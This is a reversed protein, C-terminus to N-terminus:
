CNSPPPECWGTNVVMNRLCKHSWHLYINWDWPANLPISSKKTPKWAMWMMKEDNEQLTVGRYSGVVIFFLFHQHLFDEIYTSIQKPFLILMSRSCVVVFFDFGFFRLGNKSYSNLLKKEWGWVPLSEMQYQINKRYRGTGTPNTPFCSVCSRMSPHNWVQNWVSRASRSNISSIRCWGPIYLVICIM